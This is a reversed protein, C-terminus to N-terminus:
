SLFEFTCGCYKNGTNAAKTINATLSSPKSASSLGLQILEKACQTIYSFELVTGDVMHVRIPRARGNQAGPRSQCRLAFDHDKAYRESLSRNGFNPNNNGSMDRIQTIHRGCALTRAINDCHTVWELNDARNNTRVFDIHNVEAGDFYGDLFAKAVLTHVGYQRRVGEKSLRVIEYGDENIKPQVKRGVRKQIVGDSREVFRTLSRVLGLNSVQYYGEYDPIDRWEEKM